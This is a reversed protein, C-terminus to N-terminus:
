GTWNPCFSSSVTGDPSGVFNAVLRNVRKAKERPADTYLASRLFYRKAKINSQVTPAKTM